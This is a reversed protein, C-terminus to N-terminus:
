AWFDYFNFWNYPANRTYQELHSAYQCTIDRIQKKRRNRPASDDKEIQEFYIEYKNNGRYLGYFTFVPVKLAISLKSPGAPFKVPEGMFQCEIGDDSEYVRDGMIGIMSGEDLAEKVRLMTDARSIPIVTGAIDPAMTNLFQTIVQNHEEHM